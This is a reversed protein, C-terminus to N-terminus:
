RGTSYHGAPKAGAHRWTAEGSHPGDRRVDGRAPNVSYSRYSRTPQVTRVQAPVPRVVQPSALQQAPAQHAALGGAVVVVAAFWKKARTM